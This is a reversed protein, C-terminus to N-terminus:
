KFRLRRRPWLWLSALAVGWLLSNLFVFASGLLSNFVALGGGLRFSEFLLEGPQRLVVTVWFLFPVVTTEVFNPEGVESCSFVSLVFTLFLMVLVGVFHLCSFVVVALFYKRWM